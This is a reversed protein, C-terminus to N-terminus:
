QGDDGNHGRQLSDLRRHYDDPEIDGRALREALIAHPTLPPPPPPPGVASHQPAHTGRRILSVAFWALGGWFIVMMITMWVWSGSGWGHHWNSQDLDGYSM